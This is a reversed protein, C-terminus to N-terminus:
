LVQLLPRNYDEVALVRLMSPDVHQGLEACEIPLHVSLAVRLQVVGFCIEEGTPVLLEIRGVGFEAIAVVHFCIVLLLIFLEQQVAGLFLDFVKVDFCLGILELLLLRLVQRGHKRAV